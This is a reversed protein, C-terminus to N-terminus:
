LTKEACNKVCYKWDTKYACHLPYKWFRSKSKNTPRKEILNKKLTIKRFVTQCSVIYFQCLIEVFNEDIKRCIDLKRIVHRRYAFERHWRVSNERGLYFKRRSFCVNLKGFVLTIRKGATVLVKRCLRQCLNNQVNKQFVDFFSKGYFSIM